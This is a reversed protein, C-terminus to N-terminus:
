TLPDPRELSEALEPVVRLSADIRVLSNYLLQHTKQSAEDIGVRPDLNVASNTMGVVIYNPDDRQSVCSPLAVTIVGLAVIGLGWRVGLKWRGFRGFSGFSAFASPAASM